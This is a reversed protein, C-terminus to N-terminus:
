VVNPELKYQFIKYKTKQNGEFYELLLKNGVKKGEQYVVSKRGNIRWHGQDIAGQSVRDSLCHSFFYWVNKGTHPYMETSPMGLPTVIDYFITVRITGTTDFRTSEEPLFLYLFLNMHIFDYIARM